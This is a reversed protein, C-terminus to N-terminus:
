NIESSYEVCVILGTVLEQMVTASIKGITRVFRETTVSRIQLVNGASDVNLGNDKTKPIPVMFPRNIFKDQWTAIPIIIRMPVSNFIESSIV